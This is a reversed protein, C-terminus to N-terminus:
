LIQEFCEYKKIDKNYQDKIIKGYNYLNINNHTGGFDIDTDINNPNYKQLRWSMGEYHKFYKNEANFNAVKLDANIVDEFMTSGIDYIIGRNRSNKTRNEDFFLIGHKKLHKNNIFCFWPDVRPYLYKGGRNGSVNGLLTFDGEKFKEYIPAIEKYFLVDSDILLVHDNQILNLGYNVANGHSFNPLDEIVIGDDVLFQTSLGKSEPSTDMIYVRDLKFGSNRNLSRLMNKTIEPTNYNCTLISLPIM